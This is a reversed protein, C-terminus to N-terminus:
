GHGNGGQPVLDALEAAILSALLAQSRDEEPTSTITAHSDDSVPSKNLPAWWVDGWDVPPRGHAKRWENITMTGQEIQSRERDWVSTSSEQLAPVTSFDWELHHGKIGLAPLLQEELDSAYFNADPVMGHEWFARQLERLNALTAHELDNLLPSPVGYARCAQRFTVNLAAVFEADKPSVAVDKTQAEFRLVGWRHAKDVGRFRRDLMEELDAAQEPSFTVKTDKPMLLGGIQLGQRFLNRNSAMAASAVDAALRAAAVPSLGAYEDLPNPYRLWIVESAGFPIPAAGTSPQYLFGSLWETPHPVPHTRTPHLWWLERRRTRPNHDLAWFAEGYVGMAMETQRMLRPFTWHDNVRLLLEVLDGESVEEKEPGRGRFVLLPLSGMHRARFTVISYIDNSSALYQGYKEPGFDDRHGLERDWQNVEAGVPYGRQSAQAIRELLPPM